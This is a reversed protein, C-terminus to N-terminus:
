GWGLWFTPDRWPAVSGGQLGGLGVGAAGGGRLIGCFCGFDRSLRFKTPILMFKLLDSSSSSKM